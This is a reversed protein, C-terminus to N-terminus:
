LNSPQTQPNLRKFEKAIEDNEFQLEIIKKAKIFKASIGILEDTNSFFSLITLPRKAVLKGYKPIALIKVLVEIISGFIIGVILAVTSGVIVPTNFTQPTTGEPSLLWAPIFAIAGFIVGGILFPILTVKAVGREKEACGKCMPVSIKMMVPQNKKQVGMDLNLSLAEESIKGCNM